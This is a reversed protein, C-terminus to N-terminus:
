KGFIRMIQVGLGQWWPAVYRLKPNKAECAQVIKDVMSKTSKIEMQQFYQEEDKKLVDKIDSFYSTEDMWKYQKAVNRQNFGTHYAGPEILAIHVNKTVRYIEKRLVDVGGCLAFKTMSYSGLFPMAIRGALSSVFLVTGRDKAMMKKLALQALAISGFVNVEFDHRIKELPIEALSGSEGTGANNLLVDIDYNAIKQRDADQTIDLKFTEIDLNKQKAFAALEQASEETRTTAIIHHGRKALAIASDRGFGSSCGTILITKKM